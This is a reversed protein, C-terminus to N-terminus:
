SFTDFQGTWLQPSYASGYTPKKVELEPLLDLSTDNSIVNYINVYVIIMGWMDNLLGKSAVCTCIMMKTFIDLDPTIIKFRLDSPPEEPECCPGSCCSRVGQFNNM